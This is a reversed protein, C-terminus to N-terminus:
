VDNKGRVETINPIIEQKKKAKLSRSLSHLTIDTNHKDNYEHFIQFAKLLYDQAQKWQGQEHAVAGLGQYAKAQHYQDNFEIWIKLAKQFYDESNNWQRQEYALAGLQYYSSAQAYVYGKKVPFFGVM